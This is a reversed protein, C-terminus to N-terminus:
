GKEGDIGKYTLSTAKVRRKLAPLKDLLGQSIVTTTSGSDLMARVKVEGNLLISIIPINAMVPFLKCLDRNGGTVHELFHKTEANKLYVFGDLLRPHVGYYDQLKALEETNYLDMVDAIVAGQRQVNSPYTTAAKSM